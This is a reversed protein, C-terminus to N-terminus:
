RDSPLLLLLLLAATLVSLLVLCALWSGVEVYSISLCIDAAYGKRIPNV